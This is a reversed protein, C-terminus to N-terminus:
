VQARLKDFRANYWLQNMDTGHRTDEDYRDEFKRWEARIELAIKDLIGRAIQNADKRKDQPTKGKCSFSKKLLKSRVRSQEIRAYEEALDLHGQEHKLLTKQSWKSFRTLREKRVWSVSKRFYGKAKIDTFKFRPQSDRNIIKLNFDFKIWTYTYADWPMNDDPKGEFESWRLRLDKTWPILTENPLLIYELYDSM